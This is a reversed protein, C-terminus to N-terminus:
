KGKWPNWLETMWGIPDGWLVLLAIAGVLVLGILGVFKFPEWDM